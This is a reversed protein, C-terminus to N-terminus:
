YWQFQNISQINHQVYNHRSRRVRSQFHPIHRSAGAERSEPSVLVVHPLYASMSREGTDDQQIGPTEGPTKSVGLLTLNHGATTQVLGDIQPVDLRESRERGSVVGDSTLTM